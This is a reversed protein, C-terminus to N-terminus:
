HSQKGEKAGEGPEDGPSLLRLMFAQEETLRAVEAGLREVDDRLRAIEEGAGPLAPAERRVREAYARGIPGAVFVILLILVVLSM